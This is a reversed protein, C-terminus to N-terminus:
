SSGISPRERARTRLRVCASVLAVCLRTSTGESANSTEDIAVAEIGDSTAHVASSAVMVVSAEEGESSADAGIAGGTSGARNSQVDSARSLSGRLAVLLM